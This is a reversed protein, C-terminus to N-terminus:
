DGSADHPGGGRDPTAAPPDDVEPLRELIRQAPSRGTWWAWDMPYVAPDFIVFYLHWVLIALTALVAEYFHIATAVDPLWGPLMRLMVNEQWLLLGTVSMLVTGWLFAWYEVKEAYNFTGSRPPHPRRGLHYALTAMAVRFDSASPFLGRLCARLPPNTAVYIAHWV